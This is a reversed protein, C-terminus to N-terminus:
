DKAMKRLTREGKRRATRKSQSRDFLTKALLGGGVLLAGPLSRTAYRALMGSVFTQALSRNEVIAKAGAGGYRGRLMGKELTHRVLRGGARMAIDHIILNTALNTSPGPVETPSGTAKAIAKAGADTLAGPAGDGEDLPEATTRRAM